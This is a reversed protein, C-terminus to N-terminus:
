ESDALSLELLLRDGLAAGVREVAGAVADELDTSWRRFLRVEIQRGSGGDKGLRWTGIASGSRLVVPSIWGGPRFVNARFRESVLSTKDKMSLLVPDFSPILDIRNPPLPVITQLEDVRAAPLYMTEGSVDLEVLESDLASFAARADSVRIGAWYAFDRPGAPGYTELYAFAVDRLAASREPIEPEVGLWDKTAVFTSESGRPPGFCMKGLLSANKLVGGWSHDLWRRDIEPFSDGVEDAIETRTM